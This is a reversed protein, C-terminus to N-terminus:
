NLTPDFVKKKPPFSDLVSIIQDVPDVLHKSDIHGTLAKKINDKFVNGGVEPSGLLSDLGITSNIFQWLGLASVINRKKLFSVILSDIELGEDTVQASLFKGSKGILVMNDKM